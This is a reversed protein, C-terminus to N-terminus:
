GSCRLSLCALNDIMEWCKFILGVACVRGTKGHQGVMSPNGLHLALSVDLLHAM